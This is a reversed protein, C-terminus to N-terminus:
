FLAIDDGHSTVGVKADEGAHIGRGVDPLLIKRRADPIPERFEEDVLQDGLQIEHSEGGFIQFADIQGLGNVLSEDFEIKVDPGFGFIGQGVDAPFLRM